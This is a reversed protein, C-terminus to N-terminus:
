QLIRNVAPVFLNQFLHDKLAPLLTSVSILTLLAFVVLLVFYEVSAQAQHNFFITTYRVVM